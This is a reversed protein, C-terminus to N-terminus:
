IIDVNKYFIVVSGPPLPLIREVLFLRLFGLDKYSSYIIAIAPEAMGVM